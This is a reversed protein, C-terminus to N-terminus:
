PDLLVVVVVMAAMATEGVLGRRLPTTEPVHTDHVALGVRAVRAM